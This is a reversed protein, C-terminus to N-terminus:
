MEKKSGNTNIRDSFYTKIIDKSIIRGHGLPRKAETWPTENHTLEMLGYASYQGYTEYVKFFLNMEEDSEFEFSKAEPMIGNRGNHSFKEYISPVVPGYQWAEIDENFLPTGFYALHYGQQYYLMKQLKMNSMLDEAGDSNYALQLLANAIDEVNYAM